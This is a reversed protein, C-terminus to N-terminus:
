AQLVSVAVTLMLMLVLSAMYAASVLALKLMTQGRGQGYCRRMARYLYWLAYIVCAGTCWDNVAAPLSLRTSLAQLTWTLMLVLYIAAHVHLFFVLHEVYLHRPRWYM